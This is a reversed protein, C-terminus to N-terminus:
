VPAPRLEAVTLQMVPRSSRFAEAIARAAQKHELGKMPLGDVALIVQGARLEACDYASGGPQVNIIRPLTQRTNAGGEIALGLTPQTKRVGASVPETITSADIGFHRADNGFGTDTGSDHMTRAQQKVPTTDTDDYRRGSPLVSGSRSALNRRSRREPRDVEDDESAVLVVGENDGGAGGDVGDFDEEPEVPITNILLEVGSDDSGPQPLTRGGDKGDRNRDNSMILSDNLQRIAEEIGHNNGPGAQPSNSYVARRKKAFRGARSGRGGGGNDTDSSEEPPFYTLYQNDTDADAEYTQFLRDYTPRDAPRLLPRLHPHARPPDLLLHRLALVLGRVDVEGRKYEELYYVLSGAQEPSVIENTLEAVLGAIHPEQQQQEMMSALSRDQLLLSPESRWRGNNSGSGGGATAQSFLSNAFTSKAYPLKGVRRITLSLRPPSCKLRAVAESHSKDLLSEGNVSLIEDGVRLGAQEAASFPDVASVFIGLGYDAGGRVSVGLPQGQVLLQKVPPGAADAHLPLPAPPSVPRGQADVWSFQRLGSSDGPLYPRSPSAPSRLALRLPRGSKQASKILAVAEGHALGAASTDGVGVLEDGVRLGRRDAESDEVVASVYLGVGHETGGRLSFGFGQRENPALEVGRIPRSQATSGNSAPGPASARGGLSSRSSARNKKQQKKQGDEQQSAPRMLPLFDQNECLHRFRKQDGRPLATTLLPVLEPRESIYPGLRHVLTPVDRDRQYQSLISTILVRDAQSFGSELYSQIEQVLPNNSAVSPSPQSHGGGARLGMTSTSAALKSKRK